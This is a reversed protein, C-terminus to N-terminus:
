YDNYDSWLDNMHMQHKWGIIVENCLTDITLPHELNKINIISNSFSGKLEVLVIINIIIVRTVLNMPMPPAM